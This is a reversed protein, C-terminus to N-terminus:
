ARVPGVPEPAADLAALMPKAIVDGVIASSTVKHRQTPTSCAGRRPLPPGRAAGRSGAPRCCPWAGLVLGNGHMLPCAPLSVKGPRTLLARRHRRLRRPWPVAEGHRRDRRAGPRGPAVHGGQAHRDHGGTYIMLLDDDSRRGVTGRVRGPRQQAAHEYAIAWAPCPGGDDDVWFWDRVKPLRDRVREVHRPSARRPVRSRRRRRQGVSLGARRRRLPLQHQGPGSRGQLLRLLGRPIGSQQVPVAGGQGPPGGRDRDPASGIGDARHDFDSWRLTRDGQM